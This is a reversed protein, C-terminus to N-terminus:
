KIINKYGASELEKSLREANERTGFAGVQVRFLEEATAGTDSDVKEEKGKDAEKKLEESLAFLFSLNAHGNVPSFKTVEKFKVVAQSTLNGYLGDPKGTNYGLSVLTTQFGKIIDYIQNSTSEGVIGDVVLAYVSQFSRVAKETGKGFIGDEDGAHYGLGNLDIQLRKVETGRSGVKLLVSKPHTGVVTQTQGLEKRILNLFRTWGMDLTRHPCYKGSFDQHKKVKDIGWGREKLKMAIFKSALIEADTFRKGGSKSYCIEIGIGNRNGRGKSGDGAHFANRNEPIAHIIENNDIAYHFSTASNNRTMFAVENSATADNATNHVVYCNPNMNYPAKKSHKTTPILRSVIKM